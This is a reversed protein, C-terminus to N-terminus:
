SKAEKNGRVPNHNYRNAQATLDVPKAVRFEPGVLIQHPEWPAHLVSIIEGPLADPIDWVKSDLNITGDRRVKRKSELLFAKGLPDAVDPFNKTAKAIALRKELPTAEIGSHQRHHYEDLWLSLKQNWSAVTPSTTGELFQDRVTRFFREIKGRGKPTYAPTHPLTFGLRAAVMQLHLSRFASGNDTYFRQPIGFRKVAISLGQILAEVGETTYFAAHVIYRSADDIIALLYLKQLKRGMRVRPGHLFDATWMQGFQDYAFAKAPPLSANQSQRDLGQNRVTRYLATRSPQVKNWLNEQILQKLLRQTTLSPNEQRLEKLRDLIKEPVKTGGRDARPRGALAQIGGKRYRYIWGRLTEAPITRMRGRTDTWVMDAVKALRRHFSEPEAPSQHLFQSIIGYRWLSLNEPQRLQVPPPPGFLRRPAVAPPSTPPAPTPPMAALTAASTPTTAPVCPPEKGDAPATPDPPNSVEIEKPFIRSLDPKSLDSWAKPM